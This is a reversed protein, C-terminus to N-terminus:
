VSQPPRFIGGAAVNAALDGGAVQGAIAVRLCIDQPPHVGGVHGATSTGGAVQGASCYGTTRGSVHAGRPQGEAVQGANVGNAM